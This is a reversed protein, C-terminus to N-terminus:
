DRQTGQEHFRGDEGVEQGDAVGRYWAMATPASVSFRALGPEGSVVDDGTGLVQVTHLYQVSRGTM